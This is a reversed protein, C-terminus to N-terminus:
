LFVNFNVGQSFRTDAQRATGTPQTCFSRTCMGLSGIAVTGSSPMGTPGPLPAWSFGGGYSSVERQHSRKRRERLMQVWLEADAGQHGESVCLITATFKVKCAFFILRIWHGAGGTGLPGTVSLGSYGADRNTSPAGGELHADGLSKRRGKENATPM